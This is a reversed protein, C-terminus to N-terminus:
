QISVMYLGTLVANWGTGWLLDYWLVPGNWRDFMAGNTFNFVGYVCLGYVAGAATGALWPRFQWRDKLMYALPLCLAVWGLMLIAYSAVAYIAKINMPRNQIKQVANGYFAKQTSIYIIDIVLNIVLFIYIQAQM